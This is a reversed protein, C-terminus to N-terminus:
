STYIKHDACYEAVAPSLWNKHEEFSNRIGTASAPHSFQVPTHRWGKRPAVENGDRTVVIFHLSKRLKEPEAWSEILEWQDTGLIWYWEYDVKDYQAALEEVTKWSYSAEPRSIEFDSAETWDGIKQERVAAQLMEFRQQGTAITKGKFPSQWCPMLIVKHLGAVERARKVLEIHGLHVPDFSGGFIAIRRM